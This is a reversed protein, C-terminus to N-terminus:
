SLTHKKTMTTISSTLEEEKKFINQRREPSLDKTQFPSFILATPPKLATLYCGFEQKLDTEVNMDQVLEECLYKILHNISTRKFPQPTLMGFLINKLETGIQINQQNIWTIPNLWKEQSNENLVSNIYHHFHVIPLNNATVDCQFLLMIALSFIDSYFSYDRHYFVEPSIFGLTGLLANDAAQYHFAQLAIYHGDIKAVFNKTQINKHIINRKEHLNKVFLCARLSLIKKQTPSLRKNMQDSLLGEHSQLVTYVKQNTQITGIPEPFHMKMGPQTRVARPFFSEQIKNQKSKFVETEPSTSQIMIDVLLGKRSLGKKIIIQDIPIVSEFDSGKLLAYITENITIFSLKRLLLWKAKFNNKPESPYKDFKTGSPKGSLAEEADRWDQESLDVDMQQEEVIIM